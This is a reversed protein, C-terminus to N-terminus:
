AADEGLGTVRLVEELSTEGRWAKVFGDERLSRHGARSAIEVLERSTARKLVADHLGADVNAM